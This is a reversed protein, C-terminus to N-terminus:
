YSQEPRPHLAGHLCIALDGRQASRSGIVWKAAAHVHNPLCALCTLVGTPASNSWHRGQGCKFCAGLPAWAGPPTTPRLAVVLAQSQLTVKKQLRARAQEAAEEHANCVKFAMQVREQLATQSGEEAEKLNKRIDLVSQSTFHTALVM